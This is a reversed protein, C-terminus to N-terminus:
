PCEEPLSPIGLERTVDQELVNSTPSSCGGSTAVLTAQGSSSDSVAVDYDGNADALVSSDAGGPSELSVLAGSAPTGDSFTVQGSVHWTGASAIPTLLLSLALFLSTVGARTTAAGRPCVPITRSKAM